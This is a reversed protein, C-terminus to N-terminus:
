WKFPNEVPTGGKEYLLDRASSYMRKSYSQVEGIKPRAEEPAVAIIEEIVEYHKLSVLALRELFERTEVGERRNEAEILGAEELYKEAKTLTSFGVEADGKEFLVKSSGLRKDAFLLKLEAKRSPNTTMIFWVRDRLAKLFWLPSNPLVKGPNALGYQVVSAENALVSSEVAVNGFDYKVAATRLISTFLIVFAFVFTALGALVKLLMQTRVITYFFCLSILLM